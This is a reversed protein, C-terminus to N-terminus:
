MKIYSGDAINSIFTLHVTVLWKVSSTNLGAFHLAFSALTSLLHQSGAFFQVLRSYVPQLTLQVSRALKTKSKVEGRM